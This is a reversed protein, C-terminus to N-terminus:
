TSFSVQFYGGCMTFTQNLLSFTYEGSEIGDPLNLIAFILNKGTNTARNKTTTSWFLMLTSMQAM